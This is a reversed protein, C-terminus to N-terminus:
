EPRLPMRCEHNTQTFPAATTPHSVTRLLVLGHCTQTAGFHPIVNPSERILIHRLTRSCTKLAAAKEAAYNHRDYIEAVDDIEHNLVKEVHLRPVGAATMLSAVTAVLTM